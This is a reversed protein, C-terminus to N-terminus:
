STLSNTGSPPFYSRGTHIIKPLFVKGFVSTNLLEVVVDVSQLLHMNKM